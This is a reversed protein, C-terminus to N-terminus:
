NQILTLNDVYIIDGANGSGNVSPYFKFTVTSATATFTHTALEWNATAFINPTTDMGDGLLIRQQNVVNAKIHCTMTYSNGITLGTASIEGFATVGTNALEIEISYLGDYFETSSTSLIGNSDSISWGTTSNDESDPNSANLSTILNTAFLADEANGEHVWDGQRKVYGFSGEANINQKNNVNNFTQVRIKAAGKPVRFEIKDGDAGIDPLTFDFIGSNINKDLTISGNGNLLDTANIARGATVIIVNKHQSVGGTSTQLADYVYDQTAALQSGNATNPDYTQAPITLDGETFLFSTAQFELSTRLPTPTSADFSEIFGQGFYIYSGDNSYSNIGNARLNLPRLSNDSNRSSIEGQSIETRRGNGSNVLNLLGFGGGGGINLKANNNIPTIVDSTESFLSTGGAAIKALVWESTVASDAGNADIDAISLNIFDATNDGIVLGVHDGNFASGGYLRIADSSTAGFNLLFEIGNVPNTKFDTYTGIPNTGQNFGNGVSKWIDDDNAFELLDTSINHILWTEGTPVDLNDRVATTIKGRFKIADVKPGGQAFALFSTLLIFVFLLKKM